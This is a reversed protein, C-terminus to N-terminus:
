TASKQQFLAGALGVRHASAAHVQALGIVLQANQRADDFVHEIVNLYHGVRM